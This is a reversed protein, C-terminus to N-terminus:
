APPQGQAYPSEADRPPAHGFILLLSEPIAIALTAGAIIGAVQTRTWSPAIEFRTLQTYHGAKDTQLLAFLLIANTAVLIAVGFGGVIRSDPHNAAFLFTTVLFFVAAAGNGSGWFVEHTALLLYAGWGITALTVCAQATAWVARLRPM